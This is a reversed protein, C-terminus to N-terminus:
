RMSYRQTSRSRMSLTNLQASARKIELASCRRVSEPHNPALHVRLRRAAAAGLSSFFDDIQGITRLPTSRVASTWRSMDPLADDVTAQGTSLWLLGNLYLDPHEITVSVTDLRYGQDDHKWLRVVLYPAPM